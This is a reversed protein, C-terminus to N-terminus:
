SGKAKDEKAKEEAAKELDFFDKSYILLAAREFTENYQLYVTTLPGTWYFKEYRWDPQYGRGFRDFCARKLALYNDRGKAEVVVESFKGQWFGYAISEVQASAIELPDAKRQYFTVGGYKPDYRGQTMDKLTAIDTGWAIERFGDPDGYQMCFMLCSVWEGASIRTPGGALLLVGLLVLIGTMKKMRIRRGARREM